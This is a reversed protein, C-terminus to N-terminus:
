GRKFQRELDRVTLRLTTPRGHPCNSAREVRGRHALLSEIEQETLPDGAKVAAKCALVNLVDTLLERSDTPREAEGLRDLVDILLEDAPTGALLVPCSHVAVTDPGFRSTELGLRTLLSEYQELVSMQTDSLRATEPLLLRQSELSGQAMRASLQEFIIREHLAHQDVILLGDDSEVVLYTNHVQLAKGPRAATEAPPQAHWVSPAGDAPPRPPPTDALQRQETPPGVSRPAPVAEAASSASKPGAGPARFALHRQAPEARRFFDAMAAMIAERRGPDISARETTLAPTLDHEALAERLVALVQSHVLGADRWRLEIKTPHVNVDFCHPALDLFLFVVPHRDAEALGRYAERLAHQVTRDRVFRGNVFVLQWKGTARSAAPPAIYGRVRLDRENREVGMLSDALERGYFAGIRELVTQNRDLRHTMRGNHALTFGIQPFAMAVRAVQETVHAMETAPNRLFKRRAPANFFLNRVEVTTGAPAAAPRVPGIRGAEALVEHAQGGAGRSAVRVQAVSSVSALAEGRFGLTAIHELDAEDAIKSTAHPAMCLRLDDADMGRGNDTVRILGSGAAEVTVDIQTAAADVANELLEKVVSAPREIVEGAAIKNVILDPLIQIAAM